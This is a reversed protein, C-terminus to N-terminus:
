TASIHLLRFHRRRALRLVMSAPFGFARLGLDTPYDEIRDIRLRRGRHVVDCAGAATVNRYWDVRPGYTLEAVLSGPVEALLLPTEYRRGTRRGVHRVLSFPGIGRRALPVTVRNLTHKLLELWRSRVTKAARSM